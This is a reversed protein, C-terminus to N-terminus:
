VAGHRNTSHSTRNAKAHSNEWDELSGPGGYPTTQGYLADSGYIGTYNQPSIVTQQTPNPNYEYAVQVILNHPSLFQGLLYFSYVREYGQLGALNIWGTSFKLLVPSSGDLYSGSSEQFVRGFSDIFTHMGEFLTSSIGPIGTFTGWQGYFYDYMLTVGSDLTFRVQNTGPINLSSLVTSDNYAEVPAGIYQTNLDRSLLWIGKDSQFLLGMPTFVISAQNTCGVTSSIYTPQSYQNNAGTADPGVGNIYYIADRKFVILKDDMVSLATIEGTSSQAAISPSIFYTFLDSMEVPTSELVPKSFWLLNKDEADVLWLRTDFITMVSTAPPGINEIVGGTTYILSNGLIASDALADTITVSDVSPNNLTPNTISTVQYYNQQATSWRFLVIKVNSKYTLRLTPVHITNTSSGTTTTISVPISPASRFINGKADTWEYLAQYFYQQAVLGGSGTTTTVEVDDPWVNFGQEVPAVGDYSYLIGGSINLNNGFEASNLNVDVLDMTALNVGTQSYIGAANAAGQSKNVAEVLDKFLYAISVRTGIPVASPLGTTLYGGANSYALKGVVKGTSNILFYTPQFDSQYTALFYSQENILFAKSAIGVSRVLVAPTGVSGASTVTVKKIYNTPIGSDYTYSNDIEYYVTAMGSTATSALNLVSEATIIKTPSLVTQLQQNVALSYGDTGDFFSVYILPVTVSLDVCLTLIEAMKLSFVIPTRLTLTRSLTTVRVAGGVDTGNWALFLSDNVVLGDFSPTGADDYQSSIEVATNPTTPSITNIAVYQLHNTATIVTNFVIIFYNGLFFVRPPGTVVGATPTILAGSVITEGTSFDQITYKYSDTTGNNDTFVTCLLGNTSIVSDCQTQNTASRVVPLVDLSLPQIVGKSSWTGSGSSYAELTPGIATLAGKFTTIDTFDSSPLSGLLSFGNRKQLLGGKTFISNELSLFRGPPIQFPDTKTDLGQSFNINLTQKQMM